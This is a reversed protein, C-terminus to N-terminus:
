PTGPSLLRTVAASINAIHNKAATRGLGVMREGSDFNFRDQAPTAVTVVMDARQAQMAADWWGLLQWSEGIVKWLGLPKSMTQHLRLALERRDQAPDAEAPVINIALRYGCRRRNLVDVPVRTVLGGDVLLRDAVLLPPFLGPIAATAHAARAASGKDIVVKEGVVLDASVVAAPKMLDAFTRTGFVDEAIQIGKRGSFLSARPIFRRDRIKANAGM